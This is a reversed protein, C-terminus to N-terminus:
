SSDPNEGITSRIRRLNGNRLLSLTMTDGIEKKADLYVILDAMTEVSVYDAAVISDGGISITYCSIRVISKGSSM